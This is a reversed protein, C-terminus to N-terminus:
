EAQRVRNFRLGRLNYRSTTFGTVAGRADRLFRVVGVGVFTDKAFPRLPTDAMGPLQVFLGSDKVVIGYTAKIEESRYEGAFSSLEGAPLTFSVLQLVEPRGGSGPVHWEQRHGAAAPVFEFITEGPGRARNADIPVLDFDVDDGYFSHFILKGDRVSIQVCDPREDSGSVYAGARVALDRNSVNVRRAPLSEAGPALGPADELYIDAIKQTLVIPNIADSNCLLAIAVKKDPFRVLNASIGRDGGSHEVTRLGRYKEMFLGFGYESAKGSALNPPKQMSAVIEPTGVRVDDFNREWLLLDGPTTYLGANGVVGVAESTARVGNADQTYGSARNPIVLGADDRFQTRTMGLPKFINADAFLRLSQGSARKVISGLLNYGGNNYQFETGAAFNVGRQRALMHIMAENQDAFPDQGAMGLLSFGERLGSTHNLLSRITVHHEHDAWEPIYKSVDDDLALKGRQALLLISMATFQKSISAAGLVSAPTIPVGLEVNAMGYGHEYLVSGNRSIGVSCGPSGGKNWQAFLQDVKISVSDNRSRGCGILAVFILTCSLSHVTVRWM